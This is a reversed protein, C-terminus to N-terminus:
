KNCCDQVVPLQGVHQEIALNNVTNEISKQEGAGPSDHILMGETQYINMQDNDYGSIEQKIQEMTASFAGMVLEIHEKDNGFARSQRLTNKGKWNYVKVIINLGGIFCIEVQCNGVVMKATEPMEKFIKEALEFRIVKDEM